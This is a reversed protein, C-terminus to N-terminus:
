AGNGEGMHMVEVELAGCAFREDDVFLRDFDRGDIKLDDFAFVPQFIKQVDRIGSGSPGVIGLMEGAKLELTVGCLVEPMDPRYRFRVQDFTV